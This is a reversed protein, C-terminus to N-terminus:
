LYRTRETEHSDTFPSFNNTCLTHLKTFQLLRFMTINTDCVASIDFEMLIHLIFRELCTPTRITSNLDYSVREEFDILAM